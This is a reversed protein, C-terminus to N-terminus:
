KYLWCGLPENSCYLFPSEASYAALLCKRIEIKKFNTQEIEDIGICHSTWENTSQSKRSFICCPLSTELENINSTWKRNMELKALWLCIIYVNSLEDEIERPMILKGLLYLLKDISYLSPHISLHPMRLRWNTYNMQYWGVM